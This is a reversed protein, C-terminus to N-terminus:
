NAPPRVTSGDPELEPDDEYIAQIRADRIELASPRGGRYHSSLMGTDILVVRGDMRRLIRGDALTSHGAVFRRADYRELMSDLPARLTESPITAFGRYWLPGAPDLLGWQQTPVLADWRAANDDTLRALRAAVIVERLTFGPVAWGEDVLERRLRDFRRVEDRVSENIEELRAPARAPDIGAHMFISDGVQVVVPLSRLWRGYTGDPGLAELYELQGPPHAALWEERPPPQYLPPPQVFKESAKASLQVYRDYAEQRRQESRADAFEAMAEPSADRTEALLNLGEHNGLLVHVRGGAKKAGAQLAMLLDMAARVRPGRDTFDGTQVLVATGGIWKRSQDILRARRLISVLGDLNGHIDGIAVVRSPTAATGQPVVLACSLLVAVVVDRVARLV